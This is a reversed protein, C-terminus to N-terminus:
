VMVEQDAVTDQRFVDGKLGCSELSSHCSFNSSVPLQDMVVKTLTGLVSSLYWRAWCGQPDKTCIQVVTCVNAPTHYLHRDDM